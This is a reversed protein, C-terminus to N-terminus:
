VLDKQGYVRRDLSLDLGRFSGQRIIDQAGFPTIESVQFAIHVQAYKGNELIPKTYTLSVGGNIIGKIFIENGLKVAIVPPNVAKAVSDYNPLVCAQLSNILVDTYDNFQKENNIGLEELRINSKGYNIENMMDRHIHIDLQITRPGSSGYSYIPASRGLPTTPTFNAGMSDQLNDPDLPLLLLTDTHYMYIYNEILKFNREAM